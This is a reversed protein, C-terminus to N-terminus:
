TLLQRYSQDERNTRRGVLLDYRDRVEWLGWFDAPDHKLGGDCLFVWPRTTEAVAQVVARTYGLRETAGTVRLPIERAIDVIRDRTGDRSGDEAVILEAGPLRAVITRHFDRIEGEITAAENHALLIVSVTV